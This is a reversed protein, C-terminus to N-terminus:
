GRLVYIKVVVTNANGLTESVFSLTKEVLMWQSRTATGVHWTIADVANDDTDLIHFDDADELDIDWTADPVDDGTGPIVKMGYLWGGMIKQMISSDLDTNTGSADSICTLKVIVMEDGKQHAVKYVDDITQTITWAM